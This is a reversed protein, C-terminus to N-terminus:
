FYIELPQWPIGEEFSIRIPALRPLCSNKAAQLIQSTNSEGPIGSLIHRHSERKLLLLPILLLARIQAGRIQPLPTPSPPDSSDLPSIPLEATSLVRTAEGHSDSSDWITEITEDNKCPQIFKHEFNTLIREFSSVEPKLPSKIKSRCSCQTCQPTKSNPFLHPSPASTCNDHCRRDTEYTTMM